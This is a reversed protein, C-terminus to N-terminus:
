NKSLDINKLNFSKKNKRRKVFCIFIQNVQSMRYTYTYM